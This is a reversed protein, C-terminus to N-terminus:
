WAITRYIAKYYLRHHPHFSQNRQPLQWLLYLFVAIFIRVSYYRPACPFKRRHLSHLVRCNKPVAASNENFWSAGAEIPPPVDRNSTVNRDIGLKERIKFFGLSGRDLGYKNLLFMLIFRFFMKLCFFEWTNWIFLFIMAYNNAM